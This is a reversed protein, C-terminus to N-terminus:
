GARVVIQRPKLAESKTLHLTLVGNKLEATIKSADIGSPVIFSRRYDVPQFERGLAEGPAQEKVHGELTLQDKDLDITLGDKDVGPVDAVLLVEDENEYIDVRPAVWARQQVREPTKDEYKELKDSM